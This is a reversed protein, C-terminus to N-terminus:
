SPMAGTEFFERNAVDLSVGKHEVRRILDDEIVAGREPVDGAFALREGPHLVQEGQDVTRFQAGGELASVTAPQDGEGAEVEYYGPQDIRLSGKGTEVTFVQGDGGRMVHLVLAGQDLTVVSSGDSLAGIRLKARGDLYFRGAAIDITAHARPATEVVNGLSLPYNLLAPVATQSPDTRFLVTGSMVAIRGVADPPDSTEPAQTEARAVAIQLLSGLLLGTVLVVWRCGFM